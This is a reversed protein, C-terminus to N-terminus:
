TADGPVAGASDSLRHALDAAHRADLGSVRLPGAASATTVTLTALGFLRQLPGRDTDVTQIRSLPAIRWEQWLWGTATYVAGGTAEWRHVRFRWLPMVATTLLGAAGIAAAALWLWPAAAPLIGFGEAAAALGAPLAAAPVAIAASVAAWHAMARREVRHRPPRLRVDDRLAPAAAGVAAEAAGPAGEPAARRPEPRADQTGGTRTDTRQGAM